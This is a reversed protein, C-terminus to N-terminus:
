KGGLKSKSVLRKLAEEGEYAKLRGSLYGLRYSIGATMLRWNTDKLAADITNKLTKRSEYDDRKSKGDLCSFGVIVDRGIEPKDLSFDIYGADEILSTLLTILEAIRPKKIEAIADYIHKNEEKGKWEKGLRVMENHRWRADRLEQRTIDDHLCYIVKDSEYESDSVRDEHSLNLTTKFTHRCAACSYTTTIVKGRRVDKEAMVSRCKPCSTEHRELYSGDEWCATNQDCHTCNLMFLVSEEEGVRPSHLMKDTTRLGTKGCHKCLPEESLRAGTVLDDKAIMENLAAERGDYRDLLDNAVMVSYILNLHLVARHSNRPEDPMIEFFKEYIEDFMRQKKRGMEVTVHDYIDEYYARQNLHGHTM